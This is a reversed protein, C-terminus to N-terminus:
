IGAREARQRPNLSADAGADQRILPQRGRIYDDLVPGAAPRGRGAYDAIARVIGDPAGLFMHHVRLRLASPARRFSVMTSRNDTVALRVPVALDASIRRAMEEAQALLAERPALPRQLAVVHTPFSFSLQFPAQSVAGKM